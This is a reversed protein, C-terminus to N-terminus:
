RARNAQDVVKTATNQVARLAQIYASDSMNAAITKDVAKTRSELESLLEKLEAKEATRQDNM